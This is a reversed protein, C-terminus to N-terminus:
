NIKLLAKYWTGVYKSIFRLKEDDSTFDQKDMEQTLPLLFHYSSDSIKKNDYLYQITKYCFLAKDNRWLLKGAIESKHNVSALVMYKDMDEPKKQSKQYQEIAVLLCPSDTSVLSVKDSVMLKLLSEYRQTLARKPDEDITAANLDTLIYRMGLKKMRAIVGSSDSPDLESYLYKKLAFLLSDEYVRSNNDTIYYKMFTGVRFVKEHNRYETKPTLVSTYIDQIISLARNKLAVDKIDQSTYIQELLSHLENISSVNKVLDVLNKGDSNKQFFSAFESKMDNLLNDKKDDAINVEFLIKLYEPHAVFLARNESETWIKYTFNWSANLNSIGHPFSSVIFYLSFLLFVWLTITTKMYVKETNDWQIDSLFMLWFGMIIFFVLYMAIGYWVIGFAAITWLFIYFMWFVITREFLNKFHNKEWRVAHLLYLLSLSFIAFIVAYGSPLLIMEFLGSFFKVTPVLASTLLIGIMLVYLPIAYVKKRFPFFLLLTPLLALFIYTIDTFEGTQNLQMTLNWPLKVYNNLWKEYWFYRWLDENISVWSNQMAQSVKIDDLFKQTHILLFNPIFVDNKGNIIGTIGINDGHSFTTYNKIGWPLFAVFVWLILIWFVSLFKKWNYIKSRVWVFLLLWILVFIMASTHILSINDKPYVVNMLGWLGWYTFVGFYLFTYSFFWFVWFYNFFLVGIFWSILLLTTIKITFCLGTILGIIFLYVLNNKHVTEDRGLVMFFLYIAIITFAFLGQDLKMDKALHFIVMPMSLYLTGFLLPINVVKSRLKFGYICLTILIMSWVWSFSNLFFAQTTSGFLFWIGTFIQWTIMQWLPLTSGAQAILRPFNMYVGLDDWGIPFPRLVSVFNVSLLYTAVIFLFETSLLFPCLQKLFNWSELDHNEFTFLPTFLLKGAELFDKLSFLFTWALLILLTAFNYSWFFAAITLLTVFAFFWIGFSAFIQFISNEETFGKIFTLIKKWLAYFHLSLFFPFILFWVVRFFLIIGNWFSQNVTLFYTGSVLFLQWLFLLIIHFPSVHLEKKELLITVIKYIGYVCGIIVFYIALTMDIDEKHFSYWFYYFGIIILSFVFTILSQFLYGVMYM